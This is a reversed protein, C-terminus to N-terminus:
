AHYSIAAESQKMACSLLVYDIYSVTLYLAIYAIAYLVNCTCVYCQIQYSITFEM